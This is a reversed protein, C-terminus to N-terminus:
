KAVLRNASIIISAAVAADILHFADTEIEKNREDEVAEAAERTDFEGLYEFTSARTDLLWYQKHPDASFCKLPSLNALLSELSMEREEPASTKARYYRHFRYTGCLCREAHILNVFRQDLVSSM